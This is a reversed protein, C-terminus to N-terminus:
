LEKKDEGEASAAGEEPADADSAQARLSTTM